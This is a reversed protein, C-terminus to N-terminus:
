RHGSKPTFRVNRLRVAIDAKSGFRVNRSRGGAVKLASVQGAVIGQGSGQPLCHSPALEDRKDTRIGAFGGPSEPIIGGV